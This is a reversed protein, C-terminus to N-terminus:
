FKLIKEYDEPYDIDFTNAELLRINEENQLISKAGSDGSLNTFASFTKQPFLAPVGPKDSYRTAIIPYRNEQFIAIMKDLYASSIFPQDALMVLIGDYKEYKQIAEVGVAISQGLGENWVQNEIIEVNEFDVKQQIEEKNAGLVCFVQDAKSMKAIKLANELLTSGKYPLIQKIGNMRRSAGAALVLIAIKFDKSM